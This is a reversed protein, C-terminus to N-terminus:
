NGARKYKYLILRLRYQFISSKFYAVYILYTNAVSDFNDLNAPKKLNKKVSSEKFILFLKSSSELNYKWIIKQYFNKNLLTLYFQFFKIVLSYKNVLNNLWIHKTNWAKSANSSTM